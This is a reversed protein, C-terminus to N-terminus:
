IIHTYINYIHTHAYRVWMNIYIYVWWAEACMYTYICMCIYMYVCIDTAMKAWSRGAGTETTHIYMHQTNKKKKQCLLISAVPYWPGSTQTADVKSAAGDLTFAPNGPRWWGCITCIYISHINYTYIKEMYVRNWAQTLGSKFLPRSLSALHAPGKSAWWTQNSHGLYMKCCLPPMGHLARQNCVLVHMPDTRKM